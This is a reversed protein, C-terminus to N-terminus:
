IDDVDILASCKPCKITQSMQNGMSYYKNLRFKFRNYIRKDIEDYYKKSKPDIGEFEVLEKHIRFAYDTMFVDYGFWSNIKAWKEAKPDPNFKDKKFSKWDIKKYSYHAINRFKKLFFRSTNLIWLFLYYQINKKRIKKSM